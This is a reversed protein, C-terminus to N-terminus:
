LICPSICFVVSSCFLYAGVGSFPFRPRPSRPAPPPPLLPPLRRCPFAASATPSFRSSASKMRRRKRRGREARCSPRRPSASPALPPPIRRKRGRCSVHPPPARLGITHTMLKGVRLRLNIEYAMNSASATVVSWVARRATPDPPPSRRRLFAASATESPLASGECVEGGICNFM